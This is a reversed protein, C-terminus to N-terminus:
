AEALVWHFAVDGHGPEAQTIVEDRIPELGCERLLPVHSEVGLSAFFM